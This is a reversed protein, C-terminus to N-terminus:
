IFVYVCICTFCEWSTVLFVLSLEKKNLIATHMCARVCSCRQRPQLVHSHVGALSSSKKTKKKKQSFGCVLEALVCYFHKGSYIISVLNKKV